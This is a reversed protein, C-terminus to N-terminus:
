QTCTGPKGPTCNGYLVEGVPPIQRTCGWCRGWAAVYNYKSTLRGSGSWLLRCMNDRWFSRNGVSYHVRSRKSKPRTVDSRRDIGDAAVLESVRCGRFRLPKPATTAFM